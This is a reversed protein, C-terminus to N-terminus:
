ILISLLMYLPISGLNEIMYSSEYGIKESAESFAENEWGFAWGYIQETPIIDFIVYGLIRKFFLVAPLPYYLQMIMLHTIIGLNRVASLAKNISFNLTLNLIFLLVLQSKGAKNITEAIASIAGGLLPDIIEPLEETLETGPRIEFGDSARLFITTNRFEFTIQNKM